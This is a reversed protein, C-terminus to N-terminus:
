GGRRRSDIPALPAAVDRPAPEESPAEPIKLELGIPLLDPDSLLDCNAEYILRAYEASGLYRQALGVLTDGDAVRHRRPHEVLCQTETGFAFSVGWRSAMRQGAEPYSRPLTPAEPSSPAPTLLTPPAPSTGALAHAAIPPTRRASTVGSAELPERRHRLVPQSERPAANSATPLHRGLLLSAAMGVFLVGAALKLRTARDM